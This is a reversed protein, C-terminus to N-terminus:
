SWFHIKLKNITHLVCVACLTRKNIKHLHTQFTGIATDFVKKRASSALARLKEGEENAIITPLCDALRFVAALYDPTNNVSNKKSYFLIPIIFCVKAVHKYSLM